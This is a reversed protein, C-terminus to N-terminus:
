EGGIIGEFLENLYRVLITESFVDELEVSFLEGDKLILKDINNLKNDTRSYIEFYNDTSNINIIFEINHIKLSSFGKEGVSVSYDFGEVKKLEDRIKRMSPFIVQNYKELLLKEEQDSVVYAKAREIFQDLNGM